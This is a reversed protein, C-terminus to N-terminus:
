ELKRIQVVILSRIPLHHAQKFVILTITRTMIKAYFLRYDLLLYYFVYHDFVLTLRYVYKHFWEEKEPCTEFFLSLTTQQNSFFDETDYKSKDYFQKNTIQKNSAQINQLVIPYENLWYKIRSLSTGPVLILKAGLHAFPLFLCKFRLSWNGKIQYERFGVFKM